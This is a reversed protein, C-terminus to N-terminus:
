HVYTHVNNSEAVAQRLWEIFNCTNIAEKNNKDYKKRRKYFPM